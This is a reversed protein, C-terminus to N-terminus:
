IRDRAALAKLKALLHRENLFPHIALALRLSKLAGRWNKARMNIMTMGALAGFHRPELQLTRAIDRVSEEDRGMYFLITARLNWAESYKPALRLAEDVSRMAAEHGGHQLAQRSQRMLLDVDDNGSQYWLAWIRSALGAAEAESKALKLEEFLQDLQRARESPQKAREEGRESQARLVGTSPPVILVVILAFLLGRM